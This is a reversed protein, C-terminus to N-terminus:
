ATTHQTTNVGSLWTWPIPLIAESPHLWPPPPAVWTSRQTSRQLASWPAGRAEIAAATQVLLEREQQEYGAANNGADDECHPERGVPM